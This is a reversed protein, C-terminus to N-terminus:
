GLVYFGFVKVKACFSMLNGSMFGVRCPVHPQFRKSDQKLRTPFDLMKAPSRSSVQSVKGCDEWM